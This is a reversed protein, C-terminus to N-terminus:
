ARPRRLGRFKTIFRTDSINFCITGHMAERMTVRLLADICILIQQKLAPLLIVKPQLLYCKFLVLAQHKFEHILERLSLGAKM